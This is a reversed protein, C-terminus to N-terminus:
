ALVPSSTQREMKKINGLVQDYQKILWREKNKAAFVLYDEFGIQGDGDADVYELCLDAESRPVAYGDEASWQVLDDRTIFGKDSHDIVLFLMQLAVLENASFTIADDDPAPKKPGDESGSRVDRTSGSRILSDHHNGDKVRVKGPLHLADPDLKTQAQKMKDQVVLPNLENIGDQQAAEDFKKNKKKKQKKMKKPQAVGGAPAGSVGGPDDFGLLAAAKWNKRQNTAPKAEADPEDKAAKSRRRSERKSKRPPPPPPLETMGKEHRIERADKLSSRGRQKLTDGRRERFISRRAAEEGLEIAKTVFAHFTTPMYPCTTELRLVQKQQENEVFIPDPHPVALFQTPELLQMPRVGTLRNIRRGPVKNTLRLFAAKNGYRGTYNPASFVTIVPPTPQASGAKGDGQFDVYHYFYGEEQVEHARILGVLGNVALFSVVARFGYRYSCGRQPNPLFDISLFDAVTATQGDEHTDKVPDAWLVDCLFGNMAPEAFRDFEIFQDLSQVNPSIGGHLCLWKGAPTEVTAAIPLAQFMETFRNFVALGYKRQCEEKFGFYSSVTRAEHNGRLLWVHAPFKVKLALLYLMVECGWDGRDIFDGLFLYTTKGKGKGPQGAMKIMQRMDYYQGHIDGVVTISTSNATTLQILNPEERLMSDARKIIGLAEDGSLIEQEEFRRALAEPDLKNPNVVAQKAKWQEKFAGLNAKSVVPPKKAERDAADFRSKAYLYGRDLSRRRPLKKVARGAEAVSDTEDDSDKPRNLATPLMMSRPRARADSVGSVSKASSTAGHQHPVDGSAQLFAQLKNRPPAKPKDTKSGAKAADRKARDQPAMGGSDPGDAPPVFSDDTEYGDEDEIGLDPITAMDFPQSPKFPLRRNSALATAVESRPPDNSSASIEDELDMLWEIVDDATPRTLRMPSICQICLETLSTPCETAANALIYRVEDDVAEALDDLKEYRGKEENKVASKLKSCSIQSFTKGVVLELIVIGLGLIDLQELSVRAEGRFEQKTMQRISKITKVYVTLHEDLLFSESRVVGHVYGGQHLKGVHKAVDLLLAVRTSMALGIKNSLGVLDSLSCLPRTSAGNGDDGPIEYYGKVKRKKTTELLMSRRNWFSPAESPPASRNLQELVYLKRAIEETSGGKSLVDFVAEKQASADRWGNPNSFEFEEEEEEDDFVRRGFVQEFSTQSLAGNSLSDADEDVDEGDFNDWDSSDEDDLEQSASKRSFRGSKKSSNTGRKKTSSGSGLKGFRSRRNHSGAKKTSPRAPGKKSSRKALDDEFADWEANIGGDDDHALSGFVDDFSAFSVGSGQSRGESADPKGKVDAYPDAKSESRSKNLRRM